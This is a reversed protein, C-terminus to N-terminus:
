LSDLCVLAEMKEEHAQIELNALQVQLDLLDQYGLIVRNSVVVLM